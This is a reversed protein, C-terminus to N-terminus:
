QIDKVGDHVKMHIKLKYNVKTKYHCIQCYLWPLDDRSALMLRAKRRALLKQRQEETGLGHKLIGHHELNTKFKFAMGCVECTYSKETSHSKMHMHLDSEKVFGKEVLVLCCMPSWSLLLYEVYIYSNLSPSKRCVQCYMPAPVKDPHKNVMHIYLGYWAKATPAEKQCFCCQLRSVGAIHCKKHIELVEQSECKRALHFVGIAIALLPVLLCRIPITSSTGASSCVKSM